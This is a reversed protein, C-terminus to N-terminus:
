RNVDSFLSNLEVYRNRTTEIEYELVIIPMMSGGKYLDEYVKSSSKRFARWNQQSEKLNTIASISKQKTLKNLVKNYIINLEDDVVIYQKSLCKYTELQSSANACLTDNKTQSLANTSIFLFIMGCFIIFKTMMTYKLNLNVTFM